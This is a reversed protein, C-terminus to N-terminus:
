PRSSTSGARMRSRPRLSIASTRRAVGLRRLHDGVHQARMPARDDRGELSRDHRRYLRALLDVGRRSRGDAARARRLGDRRSPRPRGRDARVVSSAPSAAGPGLIARGREAFKEGEVILALAEADDVIFAHDDEAALPHLPTYRLGMVAAATVVAWTEVRNTALLAVGDGKRLGLARFVAIMRAAADGLERYTWRTRNDAIAPRDAYRRIASILMAGVSGGEHLSGMIDERTTNATLKAFAGASAVPLRPHRRVLSGGGLRPGTRAPRRGLFARRGRDRPEARRFHRDRRSPRVGGEAAGQEGRGRSAALVTEADLGLEGLLRAVVAREAIPLGEGFEAAYVRRSFEARAGNDLALAVRAALLTNQPFPEPRRFPLGAAASIRELDRWMYRGKAPYINFPSNRWGQAAFIPGLLFPRWALDVGRAEALAAVRMAAPYSYTSAFEYWFEAAAM